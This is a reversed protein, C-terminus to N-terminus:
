IQLSDCLSAINGLRFILCFAIEIAEKRLGTSLKVTLDGIESKLLSKMRFLVAWQHHCTTGLNLSNVPM